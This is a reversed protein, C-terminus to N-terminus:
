MECFNVRSPISTSYLVLTPSSMLFIESAKVVASERASRIMVVPPNPGVFSSMVLFAITLTKLRFRTKWSSIKIFTSSLKLFLPISIGLILWFWASKGWPDLAMGLWNPEAGPMKIWSSFLINKANGPTGSSILDIISSWTRLIRSFVEFTVTKSFFSLVVPM